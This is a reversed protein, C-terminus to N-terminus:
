FCLLTMLLLMSLSRTPICMMRSIDELIQGTLWLLHSGRVSQPVIRSSASKYEGWPGQNCGDVLNWFFCRCIFPDWSIPHDPPLCFFRGLWMKGQFKQDSKWIFNEASRQEDTLRQFIAIGCSLPNTQSERQRVEQLLTFPVYRKFVIIHRKNTQHISLAHGM